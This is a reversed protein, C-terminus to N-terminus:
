LELLWSFIKIFSSIFSSILCCLHFSSPLPLCLRFPLEHSLSVHDSTLSITGSHVIRYLAFNASPFTWKTIHLVLKSVELICVSFAFTYFHNLFFFSFLCLDQTHSSFSCTQCRFFHRCWLFGSSISCFWVNLSLSPFPVLRLLAARCPFHAELAQYMLWFIESLDQYVVQVELFLFAEQQYKSWFCYHPPKGVAGHLGCVASWTRFLPSTVKSTGVKLFCTGWQGDQHKKHSLRPGSSVSMRSGHILSIILDGNVLCSFCAAM